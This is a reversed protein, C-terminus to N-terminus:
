NANKRFNLIKLANEKKWNTLQEYNFRPPLIYHMGYFDGNPQVNTKIMTVGDITLSLQVTKSIRKTSKKTPNNM